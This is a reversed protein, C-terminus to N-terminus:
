TKRQLSRSHGMKTANISCLCKTALRWSDQVMRRQIRWATNRRMRCNKALIMFCRRIQDVRTVLQRRIAGAVVHGGTKMITTISSEKVRNLEESIGRPRLVSKLLRPRLGLRLLYKKGFRRRRRIVRFEMSNM